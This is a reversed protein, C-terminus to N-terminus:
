VHAETNAILADESPQYALPEVVSEYIRRDPYADNRSIKDVDHRDITTFDCLQEM